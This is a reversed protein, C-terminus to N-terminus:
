EATQSTPPRNIPHLIEPKVERIQKLCKDHYLEGFYVTLKGTHGWCWHCAKIAKLMFNLPFSSHALYLAKRKVQPLNM